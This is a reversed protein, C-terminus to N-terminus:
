APLQSQLKKAVHLLLKDCGWQSVLTVGVPWGDDEAVGAPVSVAPLGALSAPVTLVDQVYEGLGGQGQQMASALTPATYGSGLSTCNCRSGGERGEVEAGKGSSSSIRLASAFDDQVSARIRSAQLFFNDFADATLAFTGLLIRKRM